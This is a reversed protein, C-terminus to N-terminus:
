RLQEAQDLRDDPDLARHIERDDVLEASLRQLTAARPDGHESPRPVHLRNELVWDRTQWIEAEDHEDVIEVLGLEILTRARGLATFRSSEASSLDLASRSRRARAHPLCTSSTECPNGSTKKARESAANASSALRGQGPVCATRRWAASAPRAFLLSLPNTASRYPDLDVGGAAAVCGLQCATTCQRLPHATQKAGDVGRAGGRCGSAENSCIKPSGALPVPRRRALMGAM